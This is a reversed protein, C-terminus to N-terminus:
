CSYTDDKRATSVASQLLYFQSNVFCLMSVIMCAWPTYWHTYDSRNVPDLCIIYLMFSASLAGPGRLWVNLRTSYRKERLKEMKGLKVLILFFYDLGGPLGTLFFGIVNSVPGGKDITGVLCIIGGFVIHHVYDETRLVFGPAILHYIHIGFGFAFPLLSYEGVGAVCPDSFAKIVDRFSFISVFFNALCHLAFWRAKKLHRNFIFFDVAAFYIIALTTGSAFDFLAPQGHEGGAMTKVGMFNFYDM